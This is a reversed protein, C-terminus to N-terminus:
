ILSLLKVKSSVSLRFHIPAEQILRRPCKENEAEALAFLLRAADQFYHRWMAIMQLAYVINRRGVGFEQLRTHDWTGITRKLYALTSRPDAETLKLFFYSGLSTDILAGDKFWDRRILESVFERGAHVSTIYPIHDVFRSFMDARYQAPMREVLSDLDVQDGHIDWWETALFVKLPFPSVSIFYNGQIIDQKEQQVIIQQFDQWDVKVLEAVWKSERSLDGLEPTKRSQRYGVKEFLSLGMLVNKTKRLWSSSLDITKGAILKDVLTSDPIKFVEEPASIDYKFNRAFLIVFGPYGDAFRAIKEMAVRPLNMTLDALLQITHDTPLKKLVYGRTPPALHRTIQNSITILAIRSGCNQLDDRFREHDDISCEDVVVVANLDPNFRIARILKSGRFEDAALYV